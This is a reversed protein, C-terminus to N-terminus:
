RAAQQTPATGADAAKPLPQPNDSHSNLYAILDARENGRPIGAFTMNTGPVMGRPSQLYVDLDELTWNGKQGKMAASYNFGPVGAKARGLVGWLNPGVRNPEGKAFTHCAICKKASAEGRGLDASALRTAIPVEAVPAAVPGGAPAKEAVAIDYGPKAPKHPAFVANAVINLSLLMLCSGLVAGLIKNIEFSDM